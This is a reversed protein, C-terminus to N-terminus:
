QILRVPAGGPTSDSPGAARDGPRLTGARPGLADGPRQPAAAGPQGPAAAGPAAQGPLQVTPAGGAFARRMLIIDIRRNEAARPNDKNSPQSDAKGMVDFMREPKLGASLLVRRVANARDASLEWNSYGGQGGAYPVGDTHGIIRVPNESQGIVPALEQLVKRTRELPSSSGSNFMPQGDLDRLTIRLGEENQVIELGEQKQWERVGAGQAAEQGVRGLGRRDREDILADVLPSDESYGLRKVWDKVDEDTMDELDPIDPPASVPVITPPGSSIPMAGDVTITRGGLVGNSGQTSQSVSMPAFYDSVSFKQAPNTISILWMALTFIFMSTMFDALAVKWNGGHSAHKHRRGRKIIIPAEANRRRM